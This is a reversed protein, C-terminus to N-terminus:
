SAGLGPFTDTRLNDLQQVSHERKLVLEVVVFFEGREKPFPVFFQQNGAVKTRDPTITLGTEQSIPKGNSADYLRWRLPLRDGKFGSIEMHFDLFAGRRALEANTYSAMGEGIRTLFYARTVNPELTLQSLTATGEKPPEEPRLQPWLLFLLAVVSSSVTVVAAILKLLAGAGRDGAPSTEPAQRTVEDQAM